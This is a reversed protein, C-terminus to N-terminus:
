LECLFSCGFRPGRGVGLPGEAEAIWAPRSPLPCRGAVRSAPPLAFASLFRRVLGSGFVCSGVSVAADAVSAGVLLVFAALVSCVADCRSRPCGQVFAMRSGPFVIRAFPIRM